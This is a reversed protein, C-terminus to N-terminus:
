QGAPKAAVREWGAPCDKVYPYYANAARCFYWYSITPAAQVVPPTEVYVPREVVVPASYNYYYAPPGWWPGWIPGFYIGVHGHGHGHDAWAGACGAMLALAVLLLKTPSKMAVGQM